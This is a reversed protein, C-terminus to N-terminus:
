LSSGHLNAAFHEGRVDTAFGAVSSPRKENKLSLFSGGCRLKTVSGPHFSHEHKGFFPIYTSITQKLYVM